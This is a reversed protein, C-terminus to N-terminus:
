SGPYAGVAHLWTEPDTSDEYLGGGVPHVELHLHCGTANGRAGVVGIQQGARVYQGNSVTLAQMHAYWTSLQGDGTSDVLLWPGSWRQDTRITVTGDTVALVPTGCATSFDDGTHVSAWHKSRHGWNDQDRYSAGAPLPFSVAKEGSAYARSAAAAEAAVTASSARITSLRDTIVSDELVTRAVAMAAVVKSRATEAAALATRAAALETRAALDAKGVAVTAWELRKRAKEADVVVNSQTNSLQELVVMGTVLDEDTDASLIMGLAGVSSSVYGQDIASVFLAREREYDEAAKTAAARADVLAKAAADARAAARTAETRAADYADVAAHLAAYTQALQQRAAATAASDGAHPVLLDPDLHWAAALAVARDAAEAERDARSGAEDSGHGAHHRPKQWHAGGNAHTRTDLLPAPAASAPATAVTTVALVAVGAAIGRAILARAAM